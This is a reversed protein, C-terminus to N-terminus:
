IILISYKCLKEKLDFRSVFQSLAEVYRDTVEFYPTNKAILSSADDSYSNSNQNSSNNDDNNAESLLKSKNIKDKHPIEDKNTVILELVSNLEM